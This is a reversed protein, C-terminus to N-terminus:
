GMGNRIEKIKEDLERKAAAREQRHTITKNEKGPTPFDMKCPRRGWYEFGAGKSGRKTRSM